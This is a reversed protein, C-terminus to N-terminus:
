LKGTKYIKIIQDTNLKYGLEKEYKKIIKEIQEKSPADKILFDFLTGMIRNHKLYDAIIKTESTGKIYGDKWEKLQAMYNSPVLKNKLLYKMLDVSNDFKLKKGNEDFIDGTLLMKPNKLHADMDRFVVYWSESTVKEYLRVRYKM